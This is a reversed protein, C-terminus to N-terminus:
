LKGKMGDSKTLYNVQPIALILHLHDWIRRYPGLDQVPQRCPLMPPATPHLSDVIKSSSDKNSNPLHLDTLDQMQHVM